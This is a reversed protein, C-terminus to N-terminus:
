WGIQRRLIENEMDREYLEQDREVFEEDCLRCVMTDGYPVCAKKEVLCACAACRVLTKNKPV